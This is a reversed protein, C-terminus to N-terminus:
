GGNMLNTIQSLDVDGEPLTGTNNDMNPNPRFTQADKSTFNMQTEDLVSMYSNRVEKLDVPPTSGMSTQPTSVAAQPAQSTQSQVNNSNKIVEMFIDKLEEHIADKVSEKIVSKLESIKM